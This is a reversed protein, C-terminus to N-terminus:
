VRNDLVDTKLGAREDGSRAKEMHSATRPWRYEYAPRLGQQGSGGRRTGKSLPVYLSMPQGLRELSIELPQGSVSLPADAAHPGGSGTPAVCSAM